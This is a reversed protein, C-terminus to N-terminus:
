NGLNVFGNFNTPRICHMVTVNSRGGEGLGHEVKNLFQALTSGFHGGLVKSMIVLDLSTQGGM